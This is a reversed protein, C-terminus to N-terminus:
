IIRANLSSLEVWRETCLFLFMLFYPLQLYGEPWCWNTNFSITFDIKKGDRSYFGPGTDIFVGLIVELRQM